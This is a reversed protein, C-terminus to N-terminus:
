VFFTRLSASDNKLLCAVIGYWVTSPVTVRQLSVTKPEIEGAEGAQKEGKGERYKNVISCSRYKAKGPLVPYKGWPKWEEPYEPLFVIPFLEKWSCPKWRRQSDM